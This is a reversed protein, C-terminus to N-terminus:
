QPRIFMAVAFMWDEAPDSFPAPRPETPIAKPGLTVTRPTAETITALAQNKPGDTVTLISRQMCGTILWSKCEFRAM